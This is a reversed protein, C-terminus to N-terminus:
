LTQQHRSGRRGEEGRWPDLPGVWKGEARVQGVSVPSPLIRGGVRPQKRPHPREESAAM